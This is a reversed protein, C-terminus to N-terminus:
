ADRTFVYGSNSEGYRSQPYWIVDALRTTVVCVVIIQM